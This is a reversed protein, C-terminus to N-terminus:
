MSSQNNRHEMYKSLLFVAGAIAALIAEAAWKPVNINHTFIPVLFLAMLAAALLGYRLLRRQDERKRRRQKSSLLLAGFILAFLWVIAFTLKLWAPSEPALRAIGWAGMVFGAVVATAAVVLRM